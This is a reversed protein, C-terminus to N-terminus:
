VSEEVGKGLYRAEEEKEREERYAVKLETISDPTTSMPKIIIRARLHSYKSKKSNAGSGLAANGLKKLMEIPRKFLNVREHKPASPENNKGSVDPSQPENTFQPRESM